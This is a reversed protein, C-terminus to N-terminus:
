GDRRNHKHNLYVIKLVRHFSEAYMTNMPTSVRFCLAWQECHHCYNQFYEIFLPSNCHSTLFKTLMEQFSPKSTEMLMVCLQNNM